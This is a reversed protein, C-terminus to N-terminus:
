GVTFTNFTEVEKIDFGYEEEIERLSCHESNYLYFNKREWNWFEGNEDPICTDFSVYMKRIILTDSDSLEDFTIAPKDGIWPINCFVIYQGRQLDDYLPTGLFIVNEGNNNKLEFEFYCDIIEATIM